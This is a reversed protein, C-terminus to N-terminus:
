TSRFEEGLKAKGEERPIMHLTSTELDAYIRHMNTFNGLNIPVEAFPNNAIFITPNNGSNIQRNSFIAASIHKYDGGLFFDAPVDSGNANTLRPQFSVTFEGQPVGSAITMQLPGLAFLSRLAYNDSLEGGDTDSHEHARAYNIAIIRGKTKDIVNQDLYSRYKRSKEAFSSTIRLQIDDERVQTMTAVGPVMPRVTYGKSFSANICEVYGEKTTYDPGVQQINQLIEIGSNLLSLCTMMEWAKAYFDLKLDKDFNPEHFPQTSEYLEMFAARRDSKKSYVFMATEEQHHVTSLHEKIAELNANRLEISQCIGCSDYERFINDSV